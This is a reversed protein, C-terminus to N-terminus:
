TFDDYSIKIDNKLLDSDDRWERWQIYNGQCVEYLQQLDNIPHKCYILLRLDYKKTLSELTTINVKKSNISAFAFNISNKLKIDCSFMYVKSNDYSSHTISKKAKGILKIFKNEKHLLDLFNIINDQNNSQIKIIGKCTTSDDM